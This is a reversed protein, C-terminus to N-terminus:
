SMKWKSSSPDLRVSLSWGEFRFEKYESPNKKAPSYKLIKNKVFGHASTLCKYLKGIAMKMSIRLSFVPPQPFRSLNNPSAENALVERTLLFFTGEFYQCFCYCM